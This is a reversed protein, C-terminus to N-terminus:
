MAVRLLRSHAVADAERERERALVPAQAHACVKKNLELDITHYAGLKIFQNERCNRGNIRMTEAGPNFDIGEVQLTVKIRKRDSEISGTDSEKQVRRVTTATLLDGVM